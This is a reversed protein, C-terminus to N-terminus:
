TSTVRNIFNMPGQKKPKVARRQNYIRTCLRTVLQGARKSYQGSEMPRWSNPADSRLDPKSLGSSAKQM